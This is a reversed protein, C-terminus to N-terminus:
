AHDVAQEYLAMASVQDRAPSQLAQSKSPSDIMCKSSVQGLFLHLHPFATPACPMPLFTAAAFWYDIHNVSTGFFHIDNM